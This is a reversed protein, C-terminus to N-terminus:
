FYNILVTILTLISFSSWMEIFLNNSIFIRPIYVVLIVCATLFDFLRFDWGIGYYSSSNKIYLIVFIVSLLADLIEWYRGIPTSEFYFGITSKWKSMKYVTPIEHREPELLISISDGDRESNFGFPTLMLSSNKKRWMGCSSNRSNEDAM